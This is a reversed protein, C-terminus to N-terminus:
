KWGGEHYLLQIENESLAYGFLRIDDLSGNFYNGTPNTGIMLSEYNSGLKNGSIGTSNNFQGNWYVKMTSGDCTGIINYWQNIQFATNVSLTKQLYNSFNIQFDLTNASSNYQLSYTGATTGSGKSVLTGSSNFGTFYVWASLTLGYLPNLDTTHGVKIYSSGNFSFAKGSNYFRDNTLTAGYNVGNHGKGSEDNANGNFPYYAILSDGQSSGASATKFSWVSGDTARNNNENIARIKWYYYTGSILPESVSYNTTYVFGKFNTPPNTIDLFVEYRLNMNYSNCNWMLQPTISIGTDLNVPFVNVPIPPNETSIEEGNGNDGDGVNIKCSYLFAILFILILYYIYKKM